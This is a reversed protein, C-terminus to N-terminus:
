YKIHIERIGYVHGAWKMERPNIMTIVNPSSYFNHLEKYAQATKELRWRLKSYGRLMGNGFVKVSHEEGLTVSLTGCGYLIVLLM